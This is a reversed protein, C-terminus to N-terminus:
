FPKLCHRIQDYAKLDPHQSNLFIVVALSAPIQPCIYKTWQEDHWAYPIGLVIKSDTNYEKPNKLDSSNIIIIILTGSSRNFRLLGRDPEWSAKKIITALHLTIAAWSHWEDHIVYPLWYLVIKPSEFGWIGITHWIFLRYLSWFANFIVRVNYFLIWILYHLTPSLQLYIFSYGWSSVKSTWQKNVYNTGDQVILRTFVFYWSVLTTIDSYSLWEALCPITKYTM